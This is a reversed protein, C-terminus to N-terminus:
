HIVRCWPTLTALLEDGDNRPGM